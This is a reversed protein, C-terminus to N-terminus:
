LFKKRKVLLYIIVILSWIFNGYYPQSSKELLLFFNVGGFYTLYFITLYFGWRSLALLGFAILIAISAAFLLPYVGLNLPLDHVSAISRSVEDRSPTFLYFLLIVAGFLYFLSILWIGIPLPEEQQHRM